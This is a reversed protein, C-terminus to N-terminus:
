SSLMFGLIPKCKDNCAPYFEKHKRIQSRPSQGWWFEAIALPKLNQRFAYNLLKPAACEGAAAPPNLHKTKAFILRLPQSEKQHNLFQYQDFLQNQLSISKNKRLTKLQEIKDLYNEEKTEKLLAIQKGFVTLETMGRNIFYDDSSDDFVSPVFAPHPNEDALKGSFASLYGLKHVSNLVVLVGFMKGKVPGQKTDGTGFNHTWDADNKTLFEQLERAAIRCIEPTTLAFPDNLQDPILAPDISANFLTFCPENM